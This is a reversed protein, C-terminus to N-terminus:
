DLMQESELTSPGRLYADIFSSIKQLLEDDGRFQLSELKGLGNVNEFM